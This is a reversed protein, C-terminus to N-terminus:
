FNEDSGNPMHTYVCVCACVCVCLCVCVCVQLKMCFTADSGNPMICQEDLLAFIGTRKAEILEICRPTHTHSLSHTHTNQTHPHTHTHTHTYTHHM